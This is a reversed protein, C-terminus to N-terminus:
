PHALPNDTALGEGHAAALVNNDASIFMLPTLGTRVFQEDVVLATGLHVADYGRLRHTQTLLVARDIVVRSIPVLEYEVNCHHLLLDLAEDREELTVGRQARHKAAFAAAAEVITIEALVITHGARRDTLAQIWSTGHEPFYRKVLASTDVYFISM